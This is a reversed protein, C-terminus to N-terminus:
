EDDDDYYCRSAEKAGAVFCIIAVALAGGIMAGLVFWIAIM